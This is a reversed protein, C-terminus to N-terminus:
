KDSQKDKNLHSRRKRMSEGDLEFRHASHALRDLVADAITPDGIYVHWDKVPLQGAVITSRNGHRDEVVELLERREQDVLPAIGWDDLILVDTKAIRALLRTYSGDARAVLIEHLLRPVRRYIVSYGDRCAKEGFACALFTKGTGTKGTIAINDHSRIWECSSLRRVLSRDLGPRSRYEIDEICATRERLKALQLRRTLSRAEREAHEKDVLMGVREDFGLEDFDRSDLQETLARAFAHMRMRGLKDFTEENTM